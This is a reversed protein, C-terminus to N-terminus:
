EDTLRESSIPVSLSNQATGTSRSRENIPINMGHCFVSKEALGSVDATESLM